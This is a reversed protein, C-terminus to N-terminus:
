QTEKQILYEFKQCILEERAKLFHEYNKLKWLEKEKPILHLDLYSESKDKFWIDPPTDSKGGPGNEKTTLLMLNAIQNRNEVKYRLLDRKGTGPNIDKVSKLLSQPFIHDVQPLNSEYAPTYNFNKYWLNFILHSGKSGYSQGLITDRNIELSRGNNRIIGFLESVNFEQQDSIHRTCMDILSDPTGSFAGTILTRLVYDDLRQISDWKAPFHYRLYIIPILALYSSVARDTRLFTKDYLFDRVDKIAKSIPNWKEIIAERTKDDRFKWVEYRAGKGLLSLCTKLIFDRTFDYDSKNLEGLLEEMKGDADEWAAALLSFLLDSKGLRTGGANARIFIEVVDDETYIEEDDISDLEQYVLIEAVRFQDRACMINDEIRDVQEDDLTTTSENIISGSIRNSRRNDFIIDKFKVWPFSASNPEIFKFHFRMDEPSVLDGSLVDFFLEKKEFSGELGIFLSQLRQQGDLVLLKTKNDEPVYFDTRKLTHKYNDIFKRRRILSKTRWVLLTSIPYERMISDFLRQIQEEGWVFNRQINPLWFGGGDAESNNLYTVMKHVSATRNNM